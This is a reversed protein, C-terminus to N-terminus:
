IRGKRESEGRDGKRVMKWGRKINGTIGGIGTIVNNEREKKKRQEMKEEIMKMRGRWDAEAQWKEERGGMEERV